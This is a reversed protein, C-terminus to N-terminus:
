IPVSNTVNVLTTIKLSPNVKRDGDSLGHNKQCLQQKCTRSQIDIRPVIRVSENSPAHTDEQLMYFSSEGAKLPDKERKKKGDAAAILKCGSVGM